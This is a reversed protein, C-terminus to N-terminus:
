LTKFRPDEQRTRRGVASYRGWQFKVLVSNMGQKNCHRFRTHTPFIRYFYRRLACPLPLFIDTSTRLIPAVHRLHEAGSGAWKLRPIYIDLVWQPSPQTPVLLPRFTNASLSIYPPEEMENTHLGINFSGLPTKKLIKLLDRCFFNGGCSSRNKM